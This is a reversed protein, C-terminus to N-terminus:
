TRRSWRIARKVAFAERLRTCQGPRKLGPLEVSVFRYQKGPDVTLIVRLADGADETRPQVEADYYGQSRLLQTLLNADANARRGIQAANAPAKHQAELASQRRFDRLLDASAGSIASGRWRSSTAFTASAKLSPGTIGGDPPLQQPRSSLPPTAPKLTRGLSASTRCRRLRHAQTLNVPTRRSPSTSRSRSRLRRFPKPLCRVPRSRLTRGGRGAAM